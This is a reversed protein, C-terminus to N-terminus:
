CGWRPNGKGEELWKERWEDVRGAVTEVPTREEASTGFCGELIAAVAGGKGVRMGRGDRKVFGIPNGQQVLIPAYRGTNGYVESGIAAALLCLAVSYLDSDFTPVPHVGQTVSTATPTLPPTIHSHNSPKLFSQLLEPACFPATVASMAEPIKGDLALHGSSFDVVVPEYLKEGCTAWAKDEERGSPVFERLLINNWKVDGHVVGVAKLEIFVRALREALFLWQGMQVIPRRLNALINEQSDSFERAKRLVFSELTGSPVLEMYLFSSAPDFGRFQAIGANPLVTSIFHLIRSEKEIVEQSMKNQPTKVAIAQRTAYVKSWAGEGLFFEDRQINAPSTDIRLDPPPPTINLTALRRTYFLDLQKPSEIGSAESPSPLSYPTIPPTLESTYGSVPPIIIPTVGRRPDHNMRSVHLQSENGM